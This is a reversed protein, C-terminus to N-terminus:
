TKLSCMGSTTKIESFHYGIDAKITSLLLKGTRFALSKGRERGNPRGKFEVKFGRFAPILKNARVLIKNFNRLVGVHRKGTELVSSIINNLLESSKLRIACFIRAYHFTLKKPVRLRKICKFFKRSEKTIKSLPGKKVTRTPNIIVLRVTNELGKEFLFKRADSEFRSVNIQPERPKGSDKYTKKAKQQLVTVQLYVTVVKENLGGQDVNVGLLQPKFDKKFRDTTYNKLCTDINLELSYGRKPNVNLNTPKINKKYTAQFKLLM